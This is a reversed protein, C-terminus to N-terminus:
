RTGELLLAILEDVAAGHEGGPDFLAEILMGNTLAGIGLALRAPPLPPEIGLQEVRAAVLETLGARMADFWEGFRARVKPERAAYAVFEFFLPPWRPDRQLRALFGSGAAGAADGRELAARMERLRADYREELLSVFLDDKSAFNYYVAGKSVGAREAVEDLTAGHFGRAAFVHGAARLLKARTAARREAQRGGQTASTM